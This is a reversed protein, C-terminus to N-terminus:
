SVATVEGPDYSAGNSTLVRGKDTDHGTVTLTEDAFKWKVKSNEPFKKLLEMRQLRMAAFNNNESASRRPNFRPQRAM